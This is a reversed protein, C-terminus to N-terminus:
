PSRPPLSRVRRHLGLKVGSTGEVDSGRVGQTMMSRRMDKQRQRHRRQTLTLGGCEIKPHGSAGQSRVNRGRSFLPKVKCSPNVSPISAARGLLQAARNVLARDPVQRVRVFPFSASAPPKPNGRPGGATDRWVRLERWQSDWGHALLRFSHRVFRNATGSGNGHQHCTFSLRRYLRHASPRNVHKQFSAGDALALLVAPHLVAGIRMCPLPGEIDRTSVRWCPDGRFCRRGLNAVHQVRDTIGAWFTRRILLVAGLM